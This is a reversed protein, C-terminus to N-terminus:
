LQPGGASLRSSRGPGGAWDPGASIRTSAAGGCTPSVACNLMLYAHLTPQAFVLLAAIQTDDIILRDTSGNPKDTLAPSPSPSPAPIVPLLIHADWSRRTSHSSRSKGRQLLIFLVFVHILAM